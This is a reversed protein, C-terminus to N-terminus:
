REGGRTERERERERAREGGRESGGERKGESGRDKGREREREREGEVERKRERERESMYIYIYIHIYIYIYIYIYIFLYIFIYIYIYLSLSFSLSPSLSLSLCPSLAIHKETIRPRMGDLPLRKFLCQSSLSCCSFFVVEYDGAAQLLVWNAKPGTADERPHNFIVLTSAAMTELLTLWTHIYADVLPFDGM